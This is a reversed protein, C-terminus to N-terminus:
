FFFFFFFFLFAIAPTSLISQNPCIKSNLCHFVLPIILLLPSFLFPLALPFPFNQFPSSLFSLSFFFFHSWLFFPSFFRRSIYQVTCYMLPLIFLSGFFFIFFFNPLFLLPRSPSMHYMTLALFFFDHQIYFGGWLTAYIYTHLTTEFCSSFFSFFSIYVYIPTYTVEFSFFSFVLM